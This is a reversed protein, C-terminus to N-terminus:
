DEHGDGQQDVQKIWKRWKSNGQAQTWDMLAALWEYYDVSGNHDLDFQSMLM